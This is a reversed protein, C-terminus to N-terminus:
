GFEFSTLGYVNNIDLAPLGGNYMRACRFVETLGFSTALALTSENAQPVDLQVRQEQVENLLHSIVTHAASSSRALVPGFKYGDVAPRLVGVAQLQGATGRMVATKLGPAAFWRQLFEHRDCPYSAADLGFVDELDADTLMACEPQAEGRAEGEFRIDDYLYEFGGRAYFPAMNLVGDMGIIAGPQLRERLLRLREHWLVAGLGKGRMDERMIFLGMFGYRGEYSFISGGGLMEGNHRLAVFAQPNYAHAIGVDAVGPNWGESVAWGRLIGVEDASMVGMEHGAPLPTNPM